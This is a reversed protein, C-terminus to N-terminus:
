YFATTLTDRLKTTLFAFESRNQKLRTAEISQIEAVIHAANHIYKHMSIMATENPQLYPGTKIYTRPPLAGYHEVHLYLATSIPFPDFNTIESGVHVTGHTPATLITMFGGSQEIAHAYNTNPVHLAYPGPEYDTWPGGQYFARPWNDQCKESYAIHVGTAFKMYADAIVETLLFYWLGREALDVGDWMFSELPGPLGAKLENAGGLKNGILLGTDPIDLKIGPDKAEEEATIKKIRRGKGRRLKPEVAGRIISHEGPTLLEIAAEATAALGWRAWLSFGKDCPNPILDRVFGLQYKKIAKQIKEAEPHFGAAIAEPTLFTMLYRNRRSQPHDRPPRTTHPTDLEHTPDSPNGPQTAPPRTM